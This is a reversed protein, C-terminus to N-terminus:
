GHSSFVTCRCLTCKIGILNQPEKRCHFKMLFEVVLFQASFDSITQRWCIYITIAVKMFLLSKGSTRLLQSHIDVDILMLSMVKITAEIRFDNLKREVLLKHDQNIWQSSSSVVEYFCFFSVTFWCYIIWDDQIALSWVSNIFFSIILIFVLVCLISLCTNTTLARCQRCVSLFVVRRPM